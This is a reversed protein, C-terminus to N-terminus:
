HRSCIYSNHHPTGWVGGCRQGWYCTLTHFTSPFNILLNIIPFYSLSIIGGLGPKVFKDRFKYLCIAIFCCGFNHINLQVVLACLVKTEATYCLCIFWWTYEPLIFIALRLQLKVHFLCSTWM